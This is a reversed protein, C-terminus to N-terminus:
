TMCRVAAAAYYLMYDRWAAHSSASCLCLCQMLKKSALSKSVHGKGPPWAPLKLEGLQSGSAYSCHNCAQGGQHAATCSGPGGPEGLEAHMDHEALGVSHIFQSLKSCNQLVQCPMM